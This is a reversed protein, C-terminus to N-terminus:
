LAEHTACWGRWLARYADEVRRAAAPADCLTSADVRARLDSRQARGRVGADIAALAIDTYGDDDHAIWESLGAVSLLSAGVRSAHVAGARTVVPVGMWLAECTTTTGAYPFPDLALDLEDYAAFHDRVSPTSGRLEIRSPHIGLDELRALIDARLEDFDLRRAKILLRTDPRERMVRAWLTLTPPSLKSLNNFSGITVPREPDPESPEPAEPEPRYCLFCPDLRVLTEAALADASPAPDTISDVLRADIREIGTTNAYGIASVGVPAPRAGMVGLKHGLFHGSLEVLIDIRQARIADILQPDSLGPADHWHDTHARLRETVADSKPATMFAHVEFSDADRHELLPELYYAVSHRRLDCSLYAVRLKRDPDPDNPHAGAPAIHQELAAGYRAHADYSQEPTKAHDYCHALALTSLVHPHERLPEPAHELTEIARWARATDLELLALNVLPDPLDPRAAIALALTRRAEDFAGGQALATGLGSLAGAHDPDIALARKYPDLAADYGGTRALVTGLAYWADSDKPDLECARRAHYQAREHDSAGSAVMAGLTHLAAVKPHARILKAFEDMARAPDRPAMAGLRNMSRALAPGIKASV